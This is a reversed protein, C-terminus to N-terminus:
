SSTYAAPPPAFTVTGIGGFGSGADHVCPPAPPPAVLPLLLLLALLLPVLPAPPAPVPPAYGAAVFRESQKSVPATGIPEGAM